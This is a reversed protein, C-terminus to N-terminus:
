RCPRRCAAAPPSRRTPPCRGLALRDLSRRPSSRGRASGAAGARREVARALEDLSSFRRPRRRPTALEAVFSAVERGSSSMAPAASRSSARVDLSSARASSARDRCRRAGRQALESTGGASAIMTPSVGYSTSAARPAPMRSCRGATRRSSRDPGRAPPRPRRRGARGAAAPPSNASGARTPRDPGNSLPADARSRVSGTSM